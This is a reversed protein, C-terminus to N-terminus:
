IDFKCFFISIFLLFIMLLIVYPKETPSINYKHSSFSVSHLNFTLERQNNERKKTERGGRNKLKEGEKRNKKKREETRSKGKRTRQRTKEM